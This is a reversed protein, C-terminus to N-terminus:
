PDVIITGASGKCDPDSCGLDPCINYPHPGLSTNPKVWKAKGSELRVCRDSPNDILDPDFKFRQLTKSGNVLLIRNDEATSIHFDPNSWLDGYDDVLIVYVGETNQAFLRPVVLSAGLLLGLLWRRSTAILAVFDAGTM